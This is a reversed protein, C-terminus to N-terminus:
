SNTNSLPYIIISSLFHHYLHDYLSLHYYITVAPYYIITSQHTAPVHKLFKSDNKIYFQAFELGTRHYHYIIISSSLHHYIIISSSLHHYIIISSSLHHYIIISSSLHISYIANCVWASNLHLYKSSWSVGGVVTGADDATGAEYAGYRWLRGALQQDHFHILMIHNAVDSHYEDM